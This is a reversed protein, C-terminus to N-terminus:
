RLLCIFNYPMDIFADLVHNIFTISILVRNILAISILVHNIFTISILVHNSSPFTTDHINLSERRINQLLYSWNVTVFFIFLYVSFSSSDRYFLNMNNCSTQPIPFVVAISILVHNIFTISILVHNIFAISILFHNIVTISILIHKIFTYIFSCIICTHPSVDRM